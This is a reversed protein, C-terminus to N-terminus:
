ACLRQEVGANGDFGIFTELSTGELGGAIVRDQVGFKILRYAYGINGLGTACASGIAECVGKNKILCSINAADRYFMTRDITHSGAIRSKKGEVFFNHWAIRLILNGAGGSGVIVGTQESQTEKATWGAMKISDLAGLMAWISGVDATALNADPIRCLTDIYTEPYAEAIPALVAELGMEEETIYGSVVSRVQKGYAAAKDWQRILSQNSFLKNSFDDLNSCTPFAGGMGVVAVKRGAAQM